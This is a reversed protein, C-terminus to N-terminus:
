RQVPDNSLFQSVEVATPLGQWDGPHTCALGGVVNALNLAANSDKTELYKAIFGASFADGAGVTDVVSVSLAKVRHTQGKSVVAAGDAGCKIAVVSPGFDEIKSGLVVPDESNDDLILQAEDIGAIVIDALRLMKKFVSTAERKSWLKSRYNVDFSIMCGATKAVKAVELWTAQNQASLAPTIGSLHVLSYDSFNVDEFDTMSLKSAASGKRYYDVATVGARPTTKVMLGTPSEMDVNAIVSVGESRLDGIVRKGFGDNGVRSLWTSDIGLRSLGIAVNAESGGTSIRAASLQDIANIEDGQVLGMSEGFTFVRITM